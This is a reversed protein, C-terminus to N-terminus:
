TGTQDEKEFNRIQEPPELALQIAQETLMTYGENWAEKFADSGIRERAIDLACKHRDQHKPTLPLGIEDRIRQAAGALKAARKPEAVAAQGALGELSQAIGHRNGIDRSITLSQVYRVRTEADNRQAQAVLGLCLLSGAIGDRNEIERFSALGEEQLSRAM